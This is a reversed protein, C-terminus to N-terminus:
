RSIGRNLKVVVATFIKYIDYGFSFPSFDHFFALLVFFLGDNYVIWRKVSFIFGNKNKSSKHLRSSMNQNNEVWFGSFKVLLIKDNFDPFTIDDYFFTFLSMCMINIFIQQLLIVKNEFVPL